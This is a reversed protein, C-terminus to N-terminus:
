TSFIAPATSSNSADRGEGGGGGGLVGGGGGLVAVEGGDRGEGWGPDLVAVRWVLRSARGSNKEVVIHYAAAVTLGATLGFM